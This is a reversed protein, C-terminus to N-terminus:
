TEFVYNSKINDTHVVEGKLILRIAIGICMGYKIVKEGKRIDTVAVKFLAPVPQRTVIPGTTDTLRGDKGLRRLAVVVNDAPHLRLCGQM